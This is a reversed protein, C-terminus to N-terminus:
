VSGICKRGLEATVLPFVLVELHDAYALAHEDEEETIAVWGGEWGGCAGGANELSLNHTSADPTTLVDHRKTSRGKTGQGQRARAGAASRLCVGIGQRGKTIGACVRM